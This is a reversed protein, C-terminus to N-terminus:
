VARSCAWIDVKSVGTKKLKKALENVTTGTTMVDDLIAVHNVQLPTSVTFANRLNKHRQIASLGTQHQTNRCRQCSYLNLQIQLEKAMTKGIEISQNFGRQRYRDRHLPVPIILEPKPAHHRLNDALLMGLLRANKYNNNFKLNSILHRIAGQYLFPAHTQDFFPRHKQCKGCVLVTKQKIDFPEGCQYCSNGNKPLSHYCALCLDRSNHGPNGCLICTPPFLSDQIINLWNNVM